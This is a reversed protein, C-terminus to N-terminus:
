ETRKWMYVTLYPPMNNHAVNEGGNSYVITDISDHGSSSGTMYKGSCKHTASFVGSVAAIPTGSYVGHTSITGGMQPLEKATLTHKAEGGTSGASYTSGASLLFKDKIREWTGFGFLTAPGTSVTSIYIAGVPYVSKLIDTVTPIDTKEAKDALQTEISAIINDLSESDEIGELFAVIENFSEIASSADGNFLTEITEEITNVKATLESDDYNKLSDLKEKLMTTFDEESLQKGSVKDVKNNLASTIVKNQVANESTTSTESDITGAGWYHGNTYIENSDKIFSVDENTIAGDLLKQEFTSKENFLNFRIM